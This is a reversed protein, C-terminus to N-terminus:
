MHCLPTSITLTPSTVSAATPQLGTSGYEPFSIGSMDSMVSKFYNLLNAHSMGAERAIDRLSVNMMPTDKMCREFAMLIDIRVKDRDVILPM